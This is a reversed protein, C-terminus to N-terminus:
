LKFVAVIAPYSVFVMFGFGIVIQALRMSEDRRGAVGEADALERRRMSAARQTLTERVRAGDHAVLRVINGLDRLETVGIREGLATLATWQDGSSRTSRYLTDRLLALPWGTGVKAANPLASAPAASGAMELAVLDLYVMLARRFERRRVQAERRAEIDPLFFFGVAVLAVVVLPSGVPLPVGVSLGLAVLTFSSLLLGAVGAVVKRGLTVEFSRGTLALDQRLSTYHLNRRALEGAVLQGLRTEAGTAGTTRPGRTAAAARSAATETRADFRGLQVLPSSKAPLLLRVLLFLLAGIGAGVATMTIM